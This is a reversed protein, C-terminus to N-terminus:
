GSAAAIAAEITDLHGSEHGVVNRHVVEAMSSDGPGRFNPVRRELREDSLDSLEEAAKAHNAVVEDLLAEVTHGAREEVQDRNIDDVNLTPPQGAAAQALREEMRAVIATVYARSAVHSLCDRVSWEGDLLPADAHALIAPRLREVREDADRLAQAIEARDM